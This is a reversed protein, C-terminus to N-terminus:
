RSAALHLEVDMFIDQLRRSRRLLCRLLPACEAFPQSGTGLDLPLNGFHQSAMTEPLSAIPALPFGFELCHHRGRHHIGLAEAPEHLIVRLPLAAESLRQRCSESEAGLDQYVM